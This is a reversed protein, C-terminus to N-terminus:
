AADKKMAEGLSKLEADLAFISSVLAAQLISVHKRKGEGFNQLLQDHSIDNQKLQQELLGLALQAVSAEDM